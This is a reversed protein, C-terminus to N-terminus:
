ESMLSSVDFRDVEECLTTKMEKRYTFTDSFSLREKDEYIVGGYIKDDMDEVIKRAQWIDTKDYSELTDVDRMREAYWEDPTERNYTPCSQMVEIFSFGKHNMGKRILETLEDVNTSLGRAVFTPNLSLIFQLVNLPPVSVGSSTATRKGGLRTTSSAQGTTLGYNENNHHIFVINYNNRIAHVLHNIGESLTAGDGASAFVHLNPNALKCGAALSIVRGHLGHITYAEIKDSGNGSCGVDYCFLVDKITLNELILARKTANQIGYNGCSSCWTIPRKSDLAILEKAKSVLKEHTKNM